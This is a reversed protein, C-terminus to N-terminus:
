AKVRRLMPQAAITKSPQSGINGNERIDKPARVIVRSREQRGVDEVRFKSQVATKLRVVVFEDLCIRTTGLSAGSLPSRDHIPRELPQFPAARSAKEAPNVEVVRM